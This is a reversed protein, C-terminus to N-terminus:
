RTPTAQQLMVNPAKDHELLAGTSRQFIVHSVPVRKSGIDKMYGVQEFGAFNRLFRSVWELRQPRSSEFYFNILINKVLRSPRATGTELDEDSVGYGGREMYDPDLLALLKDMLCKAVGRMLSDRHVYLEVEVTYRFVNGIPGYLDNAFAFGLIKNPLVIDEQHKRRAKQVKGKEYAVLYPLRKQLIERHKETMDGTSVRATEPAVCTFDVYYNYLDRIERMDGPTAHRISLKIDTSVKSLQEPSVCLNAVKAATVKKAKENKRKQHDQRNHMKAREFRIRNEAHQDSGFDSERKLREEKTESPDIGEIKPAEIGPLFNGGRVVLEWWPRVGVLDEPDEPAPATSKLIEQWFLQPPQRGWTEPLWHHPIIDGMPLYIVGKKRDEPEAFTYTIGDVTSLADLAPAARREQLAEQVDAGPELKSMRLASETCGLWQWIQAESQDARFAPRSDWDCPAPAWKGQWDTLDWGAENNARKKGSGGFGGDARASDISVSQDSEGAWGGRPENYEGAWDTEWRSPDGKSIEGRGAWAGTAPKVPKKTANLDDRAHTSRGFKEANGRRSRGFGGRGRNQVFSNGGRGRYVPADEDESERVTPTPKSGRNVSADENESTRVTPVPKSVSVNLQSLKEVIPTGDPEPQPAEITDPQVAKTRLHLPVVMTDEDCPSKARPPPSPPLQTLFTTPRPRPQPPSAQTSAQTEPVFYGALSCTNQPDSVHKPQALPVPVAAAAEEIAPAEADAHELFSDRRPFTWTKKRTGRKRKMNTNAHKWNDTNSHENQLLWSGDGPQPDKLLFTAM